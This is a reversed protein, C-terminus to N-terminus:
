APIELEFCGSFLEFSVSAGTLNFVEAHDRDTLLLNNLLTVAEGGEVFPVNAPDLVIGPANDNVPEISVTVYAPASWMSGDYIEFM